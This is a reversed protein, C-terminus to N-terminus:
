LAEGVHEHVIELVDVEGGAEDKLQEALVV